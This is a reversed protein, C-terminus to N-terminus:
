MVKATRRKMGFGCDHTMITLHVLARERQCIGTADDGELCFAVVVESDIVGVLVVKSGRGEVM